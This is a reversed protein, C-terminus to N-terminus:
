EPKDPIAKSAIRNGVRGLPRAPIVYGRAKLSFYDAFDTFDAPILSESFLFNRPNGM